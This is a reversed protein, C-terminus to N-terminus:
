LKSGRKDSRNQRHEYYEKGNKSLRKGPPLANRKRDAKISKRSKPTQRNDAKLVKARRKRSPRRRVIRRKAM